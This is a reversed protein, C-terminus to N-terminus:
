PNWKYISYKALAALSIADKIINQRILEIIEDKQIWFVAEVEGDNTELDSVYSCCIVHIPNSLLGTDAYIISLDIGNSVEVGMEETAERMGTEIGSKDYPEGMGRPLELITQNIAVRNQKVFAIAGDKEVITVAGAINDQTVLRFLKTQQGGAVIEEPPEMSEVRLNISDPSQWEKKWERKKM